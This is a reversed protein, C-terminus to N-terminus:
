HVLVIQLAFTNAQQQQAFLSFQQMVLSNVLDTSAQAVNTDALLSRAASANMQAAGANNASDTLRKETAGINGLQASTQQIAQDILSVAQEAGSATTVDLSSVGLQQTNSADISSQLTQEADAGIQFSQPGNSTTTVQTTGTAASTFQLGTATGAGVVNFSNGQGTQAVGNVTATADTGSGSGAALGLTNTVDSGSANSITVTQNSGGQNTALQLHGASNVSATVGTGADNVQQVFQGVTEGAQTNLTTSGNPGKITVSGNGSFSSGNIASAGTVQGSTALSTVNINATGSTVGNIGTVNQAQPGGGTVALGGAQGNLLPKTNFQTQNAIDNIGQNLQNLQAQIAQRDSTTLTDNAAQLSLQREQQLMDQQSQVASGATQLEDIAAGANNQAQGLGNVQATFEQAISLGAADVAASILRNGSALQRFLTSQQLQPLISFISSSSGVPSIAMRLM